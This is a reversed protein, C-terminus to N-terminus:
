RSADPDRWVASARPAVRQLSWTDLAWAWVEGLPAGILEAPPSQGLFAVAHRVVKAADAGATPPAGTQKSLKEDLPNTAVPLHAYAPTPYGLARQLLIQRATSDLLDAGRVVDSIAQQADDVVTAVHYAVMGDGRRVVFDGVETALRQEIPGQVVDRFGITAEGVLMRVSRATRGAAVGARCTGPYIAGAVERRTCACPFAGHQAQLQSLAAEYRASQTSQYLVPEDWHMGLRELERLIAADAGPANRPLDVDDMRVLWVGRRCRAELFSAVASM